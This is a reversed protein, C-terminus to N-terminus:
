QWAVALTGDEAQEVRTKFQASERQLLSRVWDLDERPVMELRFRRMRLPVLRFDILALTTADFRPLYMLGLDGRYQEHGSIGEYDTIFDGCGYLIPKGLHM